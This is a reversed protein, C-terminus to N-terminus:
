TTVQHLKRCLGAMECFGCAAGAGHAPLPAGARMEVFVEHIRAFHREAAAGVDPLAVTAVAADDLAVYAAERVAAPHLLSYFALQVDADPDKVKDKLAKENQTKYDLLAVGMANQDIRDIRGHLKLAGGDPLSLDRESRREGDQWRWGERERELAWEVYAPIRSVWRTLWAHELFNDEVASQFKDRTMAELVGILTREDHETLAGHQAHFAHLIGHVMDGYDRKELAETVESQEGLRLVHRAFFQYPCAVLSGYGSASMKLPVRECPVAPAPMPQLGVEGADGRVPESHPPMDLDAGFAICHALALVELEPSQLNPEDGLMAQRTFVVEPCNVLLSCLDERLRERAESRTSLGLERRVSENAFIASAGQPSLNKRDAGVVVACDFARLRAAALHTIAVPSDIAADRFMAREFERNLWDRWENFDLRLGHGALEESRAQLLALVEGGAADTELPARAGLADIAAQLRAIWEVVTAPRGGLQDFVVRLRALVPLAAQAEADRELVRALGHLGSVFNHQGMARELCLVAEFRADEPLDACVFPTKVLDLLARHYANSAVVECIADVLAAARTTVLLWGTEDAVEIGQGALAARARRAAVRDAAILAISKAGAELRARVIAAVAAAENDLSTAAMMKVRGQLSFQPHRERLLHARQYLPLAAADTPWAANLTALLADAPDATRDPMFVHVATKRAMADIFRQETATLKGDCMLFMPLHDPAAAVYDQLAQQLAAALSPLGQSDAQWLTHVLHAEMGLSTGPGVGYGRALREALASEDQPWPAARETLEDFLQGLEAALPWLGLSKFMPHRKLADYLRLLRAAESDKALKSLPERMLGTLTFLQPMWLVRGAARALARRFAPAIHQNPLVVVLSSLDPMFPRAADIVRRACEDLFSAGPPLRHLGAPDFLDASDPHTM